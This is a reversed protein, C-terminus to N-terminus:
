RLFILMRREYLILVIPEYQAARTLLCRNDEEPVPSRIASSNTMRLNSEKGTDAENRSPVTINEAGNRVWPESLCGLFYM